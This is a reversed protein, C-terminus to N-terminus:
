CVEVEVRKESFAVGYKYIAKVGNAKMERDYELDNIQKLAKMALAKLEKESSSKEAKLEIIIGLLNDKKPFLQIDYRGLGSEHNSTVYSSSFLACLGLM